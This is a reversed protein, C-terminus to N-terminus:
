VENPESRKLAVWKSSFGSLCLWLVSEFQKYFWFLLSINNSKMLNVDRRHLASHLTPFGRRSLAFCSDVDVILIVWCFAEWRLQESINVTPITGTNWEQEADKHGTNDTWSTWQGIEATEDGRQKETILWDWLLGNKILWDWLVYSINTVVAVVPM